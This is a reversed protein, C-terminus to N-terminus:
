SFDPPLPLPATAVQVSPAPGGPRNGLELAREGLPDGAVAALEIRRHDIERLVVLRDRVVIDVGHESIHLAELRDIHLVARLRLARQVAPTPQVVGSRTRPTQDKSDGPM